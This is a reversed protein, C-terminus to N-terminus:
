VHARGIEHTLKELRKPTVATMRFLAKELNEFGTIDGDDDLSVKVTYEGDDDLLFKPVTRIAVERNGNTVNIYELTNCAEAFREPTIRFKLM